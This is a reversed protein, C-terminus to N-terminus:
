TLRCTSRSPRKAATSKYDVKDSDIVSSIMGCGSLSAAVLTLVLARPASPTFQKRITM